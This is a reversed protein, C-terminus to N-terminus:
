LVERRRKERGPMVLGLSGGRRGGEGGQIAYRPWSLRREEGEKEGSHCLSALLARGEEEGKMAYRPWSYERRRRGGKLAYRPRSLEQLGTARV